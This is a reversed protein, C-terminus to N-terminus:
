CCLICQLLTFVFVELLVLTGSWLDTKPRTEFRIIRFALPLALTLGLAIWLLFTKGPLFAQLMVVAPIHSFSYNLFNKEKLLAFALMQDALVFFAPYFCSDRYVYLALATFVLSFCICITRRKRDM